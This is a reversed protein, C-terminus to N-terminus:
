NGRMNMLKNPQLAPQTLLDKRLQLEFINKSPDIYLQYMHPNSPALQNIIKNTLQGIMEKREQLLRELVKCETIISALAVRDNTSIKDKVDSM